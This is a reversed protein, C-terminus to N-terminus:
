RPFGATESRASAPAEAAGHAGGRCGAPGARRRAPKKKFRLQLHHLFRFISSQAVKVKEKALIGKMESLSIDPQEEVLQRVREEHAALAYGKYGGFKAPRISGTERHLRRFRSVSSVSIGLQEVTEAISAGDQAAEIVRRRLDNSYPKAM